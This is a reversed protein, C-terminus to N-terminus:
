ETGAAPRAFDGKPTAGVPYVVHLQTVQEGRAKGVLVQAALAHGGHQRDASLFHFHWGTPALAAVGPPSYIGILTGAVDHLPFTSQAKIAEALPPWPKKPAPAARALVSRFLGDVRVAYFRTPDPLRATLAKGLADLAMGDVRGLDLAGTFYVLQAFPIKEAPRVQRVVGKSDIHYFRGDLAVMEGDLGDLTGLGFDGHRALVAVTERGAYDGAGLSQITGVQYLEGAVAVVALALVVCAALVATRVVRLMHPM